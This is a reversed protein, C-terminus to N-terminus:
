GKLNQLYGVLEHVRTSPNDEGTLLADDLVREARKKAVPLRSLLTLFFGKQGKEYDPLQGKLDHECNASATRGGSRAYPARSEIFHLLLWYEFCPNSIVCFFGAGEVQQCGAQYNDHEDRDFVCYVRDYKEGVKNEAKQLKQATRVISVPDNGNGPTVKINTTSLQYHDCLEDFYNKETKEGECVVLVRDYPERKPGGRKLDKASYGRRKPPM